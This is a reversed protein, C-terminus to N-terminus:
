SQQVTEREIGGGIIVNDAMSNEGDDSNLSSGDVGRSLAV